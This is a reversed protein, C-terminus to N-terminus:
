DDLSDALSTVQPNNCEMWWYHSEILKDITTEVYEGEFNDSIYMILMEIVDNVYEESTKCLMLHLGNIRAKILEDESHPFEILQLKQGSM